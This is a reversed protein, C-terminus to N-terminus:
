HPRETSKATALNHTGGRQRGLGVGSRTQGKKIDTGIEMGRDM